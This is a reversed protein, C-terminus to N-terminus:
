YRRREVAADRVLDDDPLDEDAQGRFGDEAAAGDAGGPAAGGGGAVEEEGVVGALGAEGEEVAVVFLAVAFVALVDEGELLLGGGEDVAVAAGAFVSPGYVDDGEVVHCRVQSGRQRWAGPGDRSKAGASDEHVRLGGAVAEENEGIIIGVTAGAEGDTVRRRALM